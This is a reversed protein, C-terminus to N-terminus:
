TDDESHTHGDDFHNYQIKLKGIRILHILVVVLVVLAGVSLWVIIPLDPLM